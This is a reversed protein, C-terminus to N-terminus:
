DLGPYDLFLVDLALRVNANTDLTRFARRTANLARLADEANIRLALARIEEKRDSNCPKVPTEYWELLVDRWYSQWIELVNRMQPKDRGVNRSLQDALKLRQLRGGAVIDRLTDLMESRFNLVEGDELAALAWGLRGSSLRAVLDAREEEAGREILQSRITELPLPRLPILQTRSRITPLVRDTEQALLLLVAFSAPEELTKLLADQAQPLVQDFDDLIAVRYRSAYPKLALLRMMQRISDIKIRGNEDAQALILDPDSGKGISICSRCLLCPRREVADDECNLAMAFTQALKMKGLSSSGSLLYAHRIRGHQLGRRLFAVAWDHGIVQWNQNDAIADNM